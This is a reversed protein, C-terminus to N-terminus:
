RECSVGRQERVLGVGPQGPNGQSFRSVVTRDSTRGYPRRHSGGNIRQLPGAPDGSGRPQREGRQWSRCHWSLHDSRLYSRVLPYGVPIPMSLSYSYPGEVETDTRAQHETRRLEDCQRGGDDRGPRKQIALVAHIPSRDVM